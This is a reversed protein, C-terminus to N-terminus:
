HSLQIVHDPTTHICMGTQEECYHRLKDGIAHEENGYGPGYLQDVLRRWSALPDTTIWWSIAAERRQEEIPYLSELEERKSDYVHLIRCLRRWDLGELAKSVNTVTLATANSYM